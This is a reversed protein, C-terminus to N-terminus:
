NDYATKFSGNTVQITANTLPNTATFSFTGSLLTYQPGVTKDTITLTGNTVVGETPYGLAPDYVYFKLSNMAGTNGFTYTGEETHDHNTIVSLEYKDDSVFLLELNSGSPFGGSQINQTSYWDQGGIKANFHLGAVQPQQETYAVKFSGSVTNFNSTVDFGEDYVKGSFTGEITKNDEDIEVLTFTFFDSKNYYFGTQWNSNTIAIVEGLNGYKNFEIEISQMGNATTANVAFRDESRVAQLITVPVAQGDYTYDFHQEVPQPNNDTSSNSDDSCSAFLSVFLVLAFARFVNLKKM